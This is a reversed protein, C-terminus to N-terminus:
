LMITATPLCAAPEVTAIELRAENRSGAVSKRLDQQEVFRSSCIGVSRFCVDPTKKKGMKSYNHNIELFNGSWDPPFDAGERSKAGM